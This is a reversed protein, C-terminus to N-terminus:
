PCIDSYLNGLFGAGITEEMKQRRYYPLFTMLIFSNYDNLLSIDLLFSEWIKGIDEGSIRGNSRVARATRAATQIGQSLDRQRLQSVLCGSRTLRRISLFCLLKSKPQAQRSFRKSTVLGKTWGSISYIEAPLSTLLVEQYAFQPPLPREAVFTLKLHAIIRDVVAYDTIFAIVKMM